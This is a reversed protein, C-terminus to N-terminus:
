AFGIFIFQLNDWVNLYPKHLPVDWPFMGQALSCRKKMKCYEGGGGPLSDTKIASFTGNLTGLGVSISMNPLSRGLYTNEHLKLVYILVISQNVYLPEKLESNVSKRVNKVKM